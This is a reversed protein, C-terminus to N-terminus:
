FSNESNLKRGGLLDRKPKESSDADTCANRCSSTFQAAVRGDLPLRTAKLLGPRALHRKPPLGNWIPVDMDYTPTSPTGNRTTVHSRVIGTHQNQQADPRLISSSPNDIRSQIDFQFVNGYVSLITYVTRYTSKLAHRRNAKTSTPYGFEEVRQARDKRKPLLM